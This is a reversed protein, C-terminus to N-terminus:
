VEHRRAAIWQFSQASQRPTVHVVRRQDIVSFGDGLLQVLDDAGYRTVALGSCSEPGDPSFVGIVVAGTPALAERLVRAYHEVKEPTVFHLVARDHWVDYHREPRWRTVDAAITAVETLGPRARVQALAESSLDLVSLDAFGREHLRDVLTARGGGVDILSEAPTVGLVDLLELSTSPEAEFWSVEDDGKAAYVQNWHESM